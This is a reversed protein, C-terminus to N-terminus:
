TGWDIAFQIGQTGTGSIDLTKVSGSVATGAGGDYWLFEPLPTNAVPAPLTVQFSSGFGTYGNSAGKAITIPNANTPLPQIKIGRIKYGSANLARGLVDVLNTLDITVAGSSLLYQLYSGDVVPPTSTANLLRPASLFAFQASGAGVISTDFTRTITLDSEHRAQTTASM